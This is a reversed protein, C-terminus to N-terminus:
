PPHVIARGSVGKQRPCTHHSHRPPHHHSLYLPARVVNCPKGEPGTQKTFIHHGLMKSAV